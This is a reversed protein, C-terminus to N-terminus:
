LPKEFGIAHFSIKRYKGHNGLNRGYETIEM